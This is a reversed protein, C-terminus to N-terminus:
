FYFITKLEDLAQNTEEQIENEDSGFAHTMQNESINNFTFQFIKQVVVSVNETFIM